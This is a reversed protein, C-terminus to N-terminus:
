VVSKRDIHFVGCKYVEYSLFFEDLMFKSWSLKEGQICFELVSIANLTCKGKTFIQTVKCSIRYYSFKVQENIILEIM